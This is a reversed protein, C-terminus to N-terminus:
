GACTVLTVADGIHSKLMRLRVLSLLVRLRLHRILKSPTAAKYDCVDCRRGGQHSKDTAATAPSISSELAVRADRSARGRISLISRLLLVEKLRQTAREGSVLM